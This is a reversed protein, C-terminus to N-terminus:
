VNLNCQIHSWPLLDNNTREILYNDKLIGTKKFADDWIDPNFSEGWADFRAGNNWAQEIVSGLARDGRSFLAELTSTKIDHFKLKLYRSNSAKNKLYEQKRKLEAASEMKESQFYTHPKPIFSSVSVTVEAPHKFFEKRLLACKVSFDIIADLDSDTESPLGIMFYFKVRRWGLEYAQRLAKFLKDPKINKDILKLLRDSGAEPAFTLGSKKTFAILSPLSELSDEVRLSPLSIGVGLDKFEKSLTSLLDNIGPYNSTSLSLLSIDDFGTNKYTQEILAVIDKKDRIRVPQYISKAQCFRCNNPCGRMVEMTIRDHVTAIYPVIPSTPYDENKLEKVIRKKILSDTSDKKYLRPVYVGEIKSLDNLLDEKNKSSRDYTKIIDIVAEEGDGILFLDIFDALPEPNFIATGGAIILPFESGRDKSYFPINSLSLMTLLNTYSLEYSFSFGLIDFEGLPVKNELSFLPINNKRLESEMDHWPTFSRECLANEQKNIIHYLIKIGLNSMGIEYLDPYCLCVKTKIDAWSKKISNREEGIYRAPKRVNLLIDDNLQVQNM